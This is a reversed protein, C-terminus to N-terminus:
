SRRNMAAQGRSSRGATVIHLSSVHLGNRPRQQETSKPECEDASENGEGEDDEGDEGDEACEGEVDGHALHAPVAPAGVTVTHAADPNGPPVHCLTVSEAAEEESTVVDEVGSAADGQVRDLIQHRFEDDPEGDGDEDHFLQVNLVGEGAPTQDVRAQAFLAAGAPLTLTFEFPAGGEVPIRVTYAGAPLATSFAGSGATTLAAVAQGGSVLEVRAGAMASAGRFAEGSGADPGSQTLVGAFRAELPDGPGGPGSDSCAFVFSVQLVLVLKAAGRALATM